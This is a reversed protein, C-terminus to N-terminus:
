AVLQAVVGLPDGRFRSQLDLEDALELREALLRTDLLDEGFATIM